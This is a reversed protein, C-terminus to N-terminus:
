TLTEFLRHLLKMRPLLSPVFLHEHLTHGRNKFTRSEMRATFHWRLDRLLGITSARFAVLRPTNPRIPHSIRAAQRDLEKLHMLPGLPNVDYM